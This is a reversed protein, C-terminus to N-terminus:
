GAGVVGCDMFIVDVCHYRGGCCEWQGNYPSYSERSRGTQIRVNSGGYGYLADRQCGSCCHNVISVAIIRNTPVIRAFSVSDLLRCVSDICVGEAFNM